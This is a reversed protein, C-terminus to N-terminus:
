TAYDGQIGARRRRNLLVKKYNGVKWVTGAGIELLHQSLCLSSATLPSVAFMEIIVEIDHTPKISIYIGEYM